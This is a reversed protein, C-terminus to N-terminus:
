MEQVILKTRNQINKLVDDLTRDGAFYGAAEESIINFVATDHCITTDCREALSRLTDIDEEKVVPFFTTLNAAYPTEEMMEDHLKNANGMDYRCEEEFVAKKVPLGVRGAAEDGTMELYDRIFEWCLDKYDSLASIGMSLNLGIAFSKKEYSPYGLFEGKGFLLTKQASVQSVTYLLCEKTALIGSKFKEEAQNVSYSDSRVVFGDEDTTDFNKETWKEDDPIVTAGLEKTATLIKKMDENQFDVTKKEYDIFRPLSTQLLYRLMDNQLMAQSIATNEKMNKAADIYEDFTWGDKYSILDPNAFIGSLYFEVPLHYLKGGKEYARFINDFYENRDIGKEGDLYQNMDEMVAGSQLAAVDGMNVVIDPGTGSLMDLYLKQELDNESAYGGESYDILAVRVNKDPDTNYKSVVPLIGSETLGVGGVLITRKGAHPNKEARTLHILYPGKTNDYTDSAMVCIENEDIPTIKASSLISRDLDTYNWNFVEEFAGKDPDYKSCGNFSEVFIGNKNTTIKDYALLASADKGEGFKGTQLDVEKIQVIEKDERLDRGRTVIFYSGNHKFVGGWFTNSMDFTKVLKTGNEDYIGLNESGTICIRGDELVMMNMPTQYAEISAEGSNPDFTEVTGGDYQDTPPESLTITKMEEGKEDVVLIEYGYTLYYGSFYRFLLYLKGNSDMDAACLIHDSRTSEEIGEPLAEAYEDIDIDLIDTVDNESSIKKILNGDRDFLATTHEMYESFVDTSNDETIKINEPIKYVISYTALAYGGIYLYDSVVKWDLEKEPDIPLKFESVKSDFFPDTEQIVAGSKFEDKKGGSRKGCGAMPLIMSVVLLSTLMRRRNGFHVNAM